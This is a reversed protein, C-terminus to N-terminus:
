LLDFDLATISAIPARWFNFSNFQLLSDKDGDHEFVDRGQTKRDTVLNDYSGKPKYIARDALELCELESLDLEPIPMRWYLFSNYQSNVTDRM